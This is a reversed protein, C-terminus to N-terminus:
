TEFGLKRLTQSTPLPPGLIQVRSEFYAGFCLSSTLKSYLYKEFLCMLLRHVLQWLLAIWTITSVRMIWGQGHSFEVDFVGVFYEVMMAVQM